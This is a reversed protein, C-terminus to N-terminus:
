SIKELNRLCFLAIATAISVNFSEKKGKMPIELFYDVHKYLNQDIGAVEEGLLLALKLPTSKPSNQRSHLAYSIQSLNAPNLEIKRPDSLNNELGLITYNKAHLDDLTKAINESTKLTLYKEAGLATKEIQRNLKERLHPLLSPDDYRPTYGSFIATIVGFGDMTRLISGVNHCSRINHLLVIFPTRELSSTPPTTTPTPTSM